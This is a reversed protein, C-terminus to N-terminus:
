KVTFISYALSPFTDPQFVCLSKNCVIVEDPTLNKISNHIKQITAFILFSKDSLNFTIQETLRVFYLYYTGLFPLFLVSFIFRISKRQQFPFSLASTLFRINVLFNCYLYIQLAHYLHLLGRGRRACYDM